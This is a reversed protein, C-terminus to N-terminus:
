RINMQMKHCLNSDAASCATSFGGERKCKESHNVSKFTLNCKKMDTLSLEQLHKPLGEQVAAAKFHSKQIQLVYERAENLYSIM